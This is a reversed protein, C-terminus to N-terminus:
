EVRITSNVSIIFPSPMLGSLIPTVFDFPYTLTVTVYEGPERNAQSPSVTVNLSSPDSLEVDERAFQVITDDGKGLGAMRVTQQATMQLNLYAFLVRGFDFMGSFLLLLVPVILAMEVLSQGRQNRIM